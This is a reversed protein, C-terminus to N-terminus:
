QRISTDAANEALEGGPTQGRTEAAFKAFAESIFAVYRDGLGSYLRSVNHGAGQIVEFEHPIGLRVLMEHYASVRPLLGDQDGVIVRVRIKGRIAEANKEAWVWPSTSQFYDRSGGYIESFADSRSKNTESVISDADHLAGALLSVVGFLEPHRFGIKPAGAGGMSFGEIARAERQAITRYTADIHPILDNVIMTQVPTTGDFSDVYSSYPLGNVGVLIVPAARGAKIAADWKGAAGGAARQHGGRGHLWYVVPYRKNKATEYDPPLYILYSVEGKAAKSYFARYKMGAPESQDPELWAPAEGGDRPTNRRAPRTIASAENKAQAAGDAAGGLGLAAALIWTIM